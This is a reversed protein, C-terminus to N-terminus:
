QSASAKSALLLDTLASCVSLCWTAQAPTSMAAQSLCSPETAVLVGESLAGIDHSSSPLRHGAAALRHTGLPRRAQLAALAVGRCAICVVVAAMKVKQM